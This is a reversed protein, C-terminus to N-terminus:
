NFSHRAHFDDICRQYFEENQAILRDLAFTQSVRLRGAEGMRRAAEPNQALSLVAQAIQSPEDPDVLFGERGTSLLEPGSGRTSYVTPCGCAMAELPAIAFAEAYSPFVAAAANRYADFLAERSVHGHFHVSSRSGNSLLSSLFNQMSGGDAAKGDKGFVHLEFDPMSKVISPWAKVLSVIGKKATLTGSFVVRNRPAASAVVQPPLEVPNYLVACQGLPMNFVRETKEATYRSVSCTYDARRFSARELHYAIPSCRTHLEAAFYALTGNMRVVVPAALPRWGAAWGQYDPVEIVDVEGSRVWGALRKYLALRSFGWGFTHKAEPIRWVRVGQDEEYEPAHYWDPYIGVSRVQHGNKVLARALLRTMTGIGGHPGPPYESCVFCVKM